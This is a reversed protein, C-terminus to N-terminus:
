HAGGPKPKANWVRTALLLGLIAFPAMVLPWYRWNAAVKQAEGDPLIGKLLGDQLATGLYVFGDIIGVAVGVNKKGGFDMSATGSLM